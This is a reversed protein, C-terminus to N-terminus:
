PLKRARILRKARVQLRLRRDGNREVWEVWLVQNKAPARPTLAYCFMASSDSRLWKPGNGYIPQWRLEESARRKLAHRSRLLFRPADARFDISSRNCADFVFWMLGGGVYVGRLTLQMGESSVRVPHSLPSQLAEAAVSNHSQAQAQALSILFCFLGAIKRIFGKKM